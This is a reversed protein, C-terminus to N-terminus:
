NEIIFDAIKQYLNDDHMSHGLGNTEIFVADKWSSAIKKSEEFLVVTDLKDHAIIGKIGIKQGFLKGSFEQLKVNFREIFYQDLSKKMRSNLSLLNIYNEILIHLDSPAGLLIMKEVSKNEFHSQYYVCAAGGISHGILVKPSFKQAVVNIFEGYKIVNFETGVSQGHAPGDIAVITHKTKQLFPILKEWRSANSEWGHVLLIVTQDGKWTYTVFSEDQFEYFDVKTNNLIEPLKEKILRGERPESFLKYALKTAKKPAIYGLLNIYLGASKTLLFYKLSAM